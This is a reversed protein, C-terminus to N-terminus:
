TTETLKFLYFDRVWCDPGRWHKELTYGHAEIDPRFSKEDENCWMDNLHPVVFLRPVRMEQLMDLWGNIEARSCEPWSHINMALDYPGCNWAATPDVIATRKPAGAALTYKMCADRSVDVPDTCVVSMYPFLSTLRQAMRGYGAGIDLVHSRPLDVGCMRWLFDIEVISDHLDRSMMVGDVEGCVVGFSGDEKLTDLYPYPLTRIYELMPGFRERTQEGLYQEQGRFNEPDITL